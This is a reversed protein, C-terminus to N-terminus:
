RLKDNIIKNAEDSNFKILSDGDFILQDDNTYFMQDISSNSRTGTFLITDNRLVGFGLEPGGHLIYLDNNVKEIKALFKKSGKKLM